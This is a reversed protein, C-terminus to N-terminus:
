RLDIEECYDMQPEYNGGFRTQLSLVTSYIQILSNVFHYLDCAHYGECTVPDVAALGAARCVLSLGAGILAYPNGAFLKIVNSIAKFLMAFPLSNFFQGYIFLCYNYAKTAECSYINTGSIVSKELCYVYQCDINRMQKLNYILGPLCFFLLSYVISKQSIAYPSGVLDNRLDQTRASNDIGLMLGLIIQGSISNAWDKEVTKDTELQLAITCSSIACLTNMFPGVGELMTSIGVTAGLATKGFLWSIQNTMAKCSFIAVIMKIASIITIAGNWIKCIDKIGEFIVTADDIWLQSKLKNKLDDIRNTLADGARYDSEYVPITFSLNIKQPNRIELGCRSVISLPCDYSLNVDAELEAGMLELEMLLADDASYRKTSRFLKANEFIAATTNDASANQLQCPVSSDSFQIRLTELTGVCHTDGGININPQIFMSTTDNPFNVFSVLDLKPPVIESINFDWFDGSSDQHYLIEIDEITFVAENGAWDIVRFSANKSGSKAVLVDKDGTWECEYQDDDLETCDGEIYLNDSLDTFDGIVRRIGSDKDELFIKFEIHDSIQYYTKSGSALKHEYWTDENGINVVTSLLADYMFPQSSEDVPNGLDDYTNSSLGIDVVNGSVLSTSSPINISSVSCEWHPTADECIFANQNGSKEIDEFNFYVNRKAFTNPTGFNVYIEHNTENNIYCYTDDCKTETQNYERITIINGTAETNSFEIEKTIEQNVQKGFIDTAYVTILMTEEKPLLVLSSGIGSTSANSFCLHKNDSQFSCTFKVHEYGINFMPNDYINTLDAYISTNDLNLDYVILSLVTNTNSATNRRGSITTIEKGYVDLFQLNSVVPPNGDYDFFEPSSTYTNGVNDSVQLYISYTGDITIEDLVIEGTKSCENEETSVDTINQFASDVFVKLYKIGSCETINTSNLTDNISYDIKLKGDTIDQYMSFDLTPSAKDVYFSISLPSGGVEQIKFTQKGTDYGNLKNYYCDSKLDDNELCEFARLNSPNESFLLVDSDISFNMILNDYQGVYGNFDANGGVYNTNISGYVYASYIPLSLILFILFYTKKRFNKNNM